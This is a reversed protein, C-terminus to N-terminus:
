DRSARVEVRRVFVEDGDGHNQLGVHGPVNMRVPDTDSYDNVREGNLDVAIRDGDVSIEFTNWEGPPRLAADRATVDPPDFGYVAGTTWGDDDTADIQVEHGATVAVWPDDGPDPFGVFVGSNDDGPVMWEVRVVYSAPLPDPHWYLGLGGSSRLTCDVLEFGGPGAQRWREASQPTGDFLSRFGAEPTSATCEEAGTQAPAASRDVDGGGSTCGAAVVAGLLLAGVPRVVASV